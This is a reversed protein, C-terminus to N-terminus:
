EGRECAQANGASANGGGAQDCHEMEDKIHCFYLKVPVWINCNVMVFGEVAKDHAGGSPIPEQHRGTDDTYCIMDDRNEVQSKLSFSIRSSTNNTRAHQVIFSDPALKRRASAVRMQQM